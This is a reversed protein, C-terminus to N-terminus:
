IPAHVFFDRPCTNLDIDYKSSIRTNEKCNYFHGTM